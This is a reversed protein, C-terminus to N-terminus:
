SYIYKYIFFHFHFIAENLECSVYTTRSSHACSCSIFYCGGGGRAGSAAGGDGDDVTTVTSISCLM